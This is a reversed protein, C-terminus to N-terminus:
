TGCMGSARVAGVIAKAKATDVAVSGGDFEQRTYDVIKAEDGEYRAFSDCVNKARSIARDPKAVLHPDIRSLARILADSSPTPPATPASDPATAPASQQTAPAPAPEPAATSCGALVLAAAAVLAIRMM